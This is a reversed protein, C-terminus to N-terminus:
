LVRAITVGDRLPLLIQETRPDQKVQQNFAAVAHGNASGDGCGYAEGQYLTNDVLILSGSQVLNLDFLTEYYGAYGQKDADIFILDYSRGSDSLTKMSAQGDGEHIEFRGSFGAADLHRRAMEAAYHDFELGDLHGDDPLAELMALSAYGAFIGVELIQKANTAKVLLRLFQGELAGSVMEQELLLSTKGEQHLQPWDTARIDKELNILAPSPNSTVSDLYPDLGEALQLCSSLTKSTDSDLPIDALQKELVALKAALISHPTVPRAATPRSLIATNSDM